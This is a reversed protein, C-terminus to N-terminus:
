CWARSTRRPRTRARASPRRGSGAGRRGRRGPTSPPWPRCPRSSSPCPRPRPSRARRGSSPRASTARTVPLSFTNTRRGQRTSLRITYRGAKLGKPKIKVTYTHKAKRAQGQARPARDQRQPGRRDAGARGEEPPVHAHAGQGRVDPVGHPLLQRLWAGAREQGQLRRGEADGDVDGECGRVAGDGVRGAQSSRRRRRRIASRCARARPATATTSSGAAGADHHVSVDASLDYAGFVEPGVDAGSCSTSRSRCATTSSSGTPGTRASTTTPTAPAPTPTPTAPRSPRTTSTRRTAAPSPGRTWRRRPRRTTPASTATATTRTPTTSCCARTGTSRTASPSARPRPRRLGSRDRLEM